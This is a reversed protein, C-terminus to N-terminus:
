LSVKDALVQLKQSHLFDFYKSLTIGIQSIFSTAHEITLPHYGLEEALLELEKQDHQHLRCTALYQLAQDKEWVQLEIKEYLSGWNQIQTTIIKKFNTTLFKVLENTDTVNDFVCLIKENKFYEKLLQIILNIDTINDLQLTKAIEKFSTELSDGNVFIIHDYEEDYKQVYQSSLESKGIGPIGTIVVVDPKANDLFTNHICHLKDDRGIFNPIPKPYKYKFSPRLDKLENPPCGLRALPQEVM